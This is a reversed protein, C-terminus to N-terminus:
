NLWVLLVTAYKSMFLSLKIIHLAKFKSGFKKECADKHYNYKEYKDRRHVRSYVQILKTWNKGNVFCLKIYFIFVCAKLPIKAMGTDIIM